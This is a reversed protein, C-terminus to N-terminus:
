MQDISLNTTLISSANGRISGTTTMAQNFDSSSALAIHTNGTVTGYNPDFGIWGAGPIFVEIWAHLEYSPNEVQIYYYGSVFRTAIGLNRLLQIQM